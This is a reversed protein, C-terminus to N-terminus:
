TAVSPVALLTMPLDQRLQLTCELEEQCQLLLHLLAALM